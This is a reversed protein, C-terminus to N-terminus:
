HHMTWWQYKQINYPNFDFGNSMLKLLFDNTKRMTKCNKKSFAAM